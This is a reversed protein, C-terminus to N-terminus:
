LLRIYTSQYFGLGLKKALLRDSDKPYCDSIGFASTNYVLMTNISSMWCWNVPLRDWQKSPEKCRLHHFTEEM